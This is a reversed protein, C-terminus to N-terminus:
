RLKRVLAPFAWAVFVLYALAVWFSLLFDTVTVGIVVYVACAGVYGLLVTAQRRSPLRSGLGADHDSVGAAARGAGGRVRRARKQRLARIDGRGTRAGRPCRRRNR